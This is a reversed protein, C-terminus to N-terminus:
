RARGTYGLGETRPDRGGYSTGIVTVNIPRASREERSGNRPDNLAKGVADEVDQRKPMGPQSATETARQAEDYADGIESVDLDPMEELAQEAVPVYRKREQFGVAFKTAAVPSMGVGVAQDYGWLKYNIYYPARDDKLMEEELRKRVYMAEQAERDDARIGEIRTTAQDTLARLAQQRDGSLINQLAEATPDGTGQTTTYISGINDRYQGQRLMGAFTVFNERGVLTTMQAPNLQANRLADLQNLVGQEPKAGAAELIKMGEPTTGGALITMINRLSTGGSEEDINMASVLLGSTEEATLGVEAGTALARPLEKELVKPSSAPSLIQTQRIIDQLRDPDAVYQSGKAFLGVLSSAPASTTMSTEVLQEFLAVRERDGMAATKSKLEAFTTAMDSLANPGGKKEAAARVAALEDPRYGQSLFQLDIQVEKVRNAAEANRELEQTNLRLAATLAGVAAAGAVLVDNSLNSWTTGLKDHKRSADEAADGSKRIEDGAQRTQDGAKKSREGSQEAADGTRKIQRAHKQEAETVRELDRIAQDAEVTIRQKIEDQAM